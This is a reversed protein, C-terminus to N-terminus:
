ADGGLSLPEMCSCAGTGRAGGCFVHRPFITLNPFLCSILVREEKWVCVWELKLYVTEAGREQTLGLSGKLLAGGGVGGQSPAPSPSPSANM